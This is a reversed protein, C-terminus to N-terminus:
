APTKAKVMAVHTEGLEDSVEILFAPTGEGVDCDANTGIVEACTVEDGIMVPMDDPVGELAKRLQGVTMM